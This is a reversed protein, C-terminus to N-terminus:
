RSLTPAMREFGDSTLRLVEARQATDLDWDSLVHRKYGLALASSGPRHTHGHVLETTGCGHMWYVATVADVDADKSGDYRSRRSEARIDSAIKLREALPRALFQQQWDQGRVEKRFAQYPLDSLCLADGHSLMVRQNWALLVTPDPLALMGTDRLLAAGALFDRNGVMFAVQRHSCAQAIADVCHREFPRSRMDDGVWVEFLDGLIFVADASTHALHAAFADFTRPMFECLHLDSIFDICQWAKPAAIEFYGPLASPGTYSVSATPNAVRIQLDGPASEAM